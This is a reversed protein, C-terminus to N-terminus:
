RQLFVSKTSKFAPSAELGTGTLFCWGLPYKWTVTACNDADRM